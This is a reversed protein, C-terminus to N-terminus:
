SVIKHGECLYLPLNASLDVTVKDVEIGDNSIIYGFVIGKGIM